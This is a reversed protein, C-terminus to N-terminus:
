ELEYLLMSIFRMHIAHKDNSMIIISYQSFFFLLIHNELFSSISAIMSHPIAMWVLYKCEHLLCVFSNENVLPLVCRYFMFFLKLHFSYFLNCVFHVTRSYFLFSLSSFLVCTFHAYIKNKAKKKLFANPKTSM